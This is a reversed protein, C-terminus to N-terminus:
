AHGMEQRRGLPESIERQGRGAHPPHPIQFGLTGVIGVPCLRLRRQLRRCPHHMCHQSSYKHRFLDPDINRVFIFGQSRLMPLCRIM